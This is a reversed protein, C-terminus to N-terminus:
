WGQLRHRLFFWYSLVTMILLQMIFYEPGTELGLAFNLPPPVLAKAWGMSIDTLNAEVGSEIIFPLFLVLSVTDAVVWLLYIRLVTKLNKKNLQM